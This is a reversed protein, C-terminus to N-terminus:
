AREVPIFEFTEFERRLTKAATQAHQESLFEMAELKVKTLAIGTSFDSLDHFFLGSARDKLIHTTPM